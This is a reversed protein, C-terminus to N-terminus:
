RILSDHAGHIRLVEDYGPPWLETRDGFMRLDLRRVIGGKGATDWGELVVGAEYQEEIFYDHFAKKNNAISM